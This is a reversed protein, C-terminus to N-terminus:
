KAYKEEYSKQKKEYEERTMIPKAPTGMIVQAAPVDKTVISGAAIVSKDEITIGALIIAGMGIIVDDGVYTKILRRSAPYKDNAFRVSPGLFVRQGLTIGPPIYNNSQICVNKGITVGSDLITASGVISRKGVQCNERIVVHTGTEVFDELESTEYVITFPRLHNKEGILSGKSIQDYFSEINSEKVGTFPIEKTKARIPYGLIVFSDIISDTSVESPGFICANSAIFSSRISAKQSRYGQEIPLKYGRRV